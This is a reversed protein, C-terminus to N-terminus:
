ANETPTVSASNTIKEAEKIKQWRKKSAEGIKRRGEETMRGKRKKKPFLKTESMEFCEKKQKLEELFANQDKIKQALNNIGKFLVCFSKYAASQGALILIVIGMEWYM